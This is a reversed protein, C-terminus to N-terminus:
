FTIKVTFFRGNYKIVEDLNADSLKIFEFDDKGM